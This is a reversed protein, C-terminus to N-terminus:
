TCLCGGQFWRRRENSTDKSSRVDTNDFWTLMLKQKLDKAAPAIFEVMGTVRIEGLGSGLTPRAVDQAGPKTSFGSRASLFGDKMCVWAGGVRRM